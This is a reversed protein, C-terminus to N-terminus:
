WDGLRFLALDEDFILEHADIVDVRVGNGKGVGPGGYVSGSGDYMTSVEACAEVGRGFGLDEASFGGAGDDIGVM